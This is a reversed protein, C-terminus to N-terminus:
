NIQDLFEALTPDDAARMSARPLPRTTAGSRPPATTSNSTAPMQRQESIKVTRLTSIDLLRAATRHALKYRKLLKPGADEGRDRASFAPGAPLYEAWCLYGRSGYVAAGLTPEAPDFAYDVRAGDGLQAFHEPAIFEVTENNVQCIIKGDRIQSNRKEPLFVALNHQALQRLPSASLFTTLAELPPQSRPAKPQRGEWLMAGWAVDALRDIHIFGLDRAHLVGDSARRQQKAAWEYEGAHRGINVAEGPKLFTPVLRQHHNFAGEIPKGRPTYAYIVEVGLSRIGDTIKQTEDGAMDSVQWGEETEVLSGSDDSAWGSICRAKWVGREIVIKDPIGYRTMLKRLFRLIDSAQYADRLRGILELGLWAGSAWDWAYLGQRGVACGHRKIMSSFGPATAEDTSVEFWFPINSSMDDMVWVRGPQLAVTTGDELEETLERRGSVTSTSYHKQGRLRAEMEPTWKQKLYEVLCVPKTGARLHGALTAPVGQFDGLRKLTTAISGTRRDRTRQDCSAGMTAAYLRNMEGVVDPLKLLSEFPSAKGEPSDPALQEVPLLLLRRCKEASTIRENGRRVATNLLRSLTAVSTGLARSVESLGARQELFPLANQLLIRRRGAEDRQRDSLRSGDLAPTEHPQDAPQERPSTATGSNEESYSLTNTETGVTSEPSPLMAPQPPFDTSSQSNTTSLKAAKPRLVSEFCRIMKGLDEDNMQTVKLVRGLVRQTLQWVLRKGRTLEIANRLRWYEGRSPSDSLPASNLQYTKMKKVFAQTLLTLM